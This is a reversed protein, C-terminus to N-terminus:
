GSGHRNLKYVLTAGFDNELARDIGIIKQAGHEVFLMAQQGVSTDHAVYGNGVNGAVVLQQDIAVARNNRNRIEILEVGHHAVIDIHRPTHAVGARLNRQNM